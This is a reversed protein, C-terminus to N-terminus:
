GHDGGEAQHEILDGLPEFAGGMKINIALGGGAGDGDVTLEAPAKPVVFGGVWKLADIQRDFAELLTCNLRAALEPTTMSAIRAMAVLPNGHLRIFADRWKAERRGQWPLNEPKGLDGDARPDLPLLQQDGALALAAQAQAREQARRVRYLRQAEATRRGVAFTWSRVPVAGVSWGGRGVVQGRVRGALNPGKSVLIGSLTSLSTDIGIWIGRPIHPPILPPAPATGISVPLVLPPM